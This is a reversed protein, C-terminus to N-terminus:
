QQILSAIVWRNGHLIMTVSLKGQRSIRESSPMTIESDFNIWAQAVNEQIELRRNSVKLVVKQIDTGMTTLWSDVDVDLRMMGLKENKFVSTVLAGKLFLSKFYFEDRNAQGQLQIVLQDILADPTKLKDNLDKSKVMSTANALIKPAMGPVVLIRRAVELAGEERNGYLYSLILNEYADSLSESSNLAIAEELIQSAKNYDSRVFLKGYELLARALEPGKYGAKRAIEIHPLANKYQGDGLLLVAMQSNAKGDVPNLKLLQQIKSKASQNLIQNIRTTFDKANKFGEAVGLLTGSANTFVFTPYATIGYKKALGAGEKEADVKIPIYQSSQDRVLKDPLVEKEMVKCYGCWTTTFYIMLPKGTKKSESNAVSFSARWKITEPEVSVSLSKCSLLTVFSALITRTFLM